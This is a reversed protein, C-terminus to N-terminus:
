MFIVFHLLPQTRVFLDHPNRKIVDVLHQTMNFCTFIFAFICCSCLLHLCRCLGRFGSSWAQGLLPHAATDDSVLSTNGAAAGISGSSASTTSTTMNPMEGVTRPQSPPTLLRLITRQAALETAQLVSVLHAHQKESAILIASSERIAQTSALSRDEIQSELRSTDIELRSTDLELREVTAQVEVKRLELHQRDHYVSNAGLALAGIDSAVGGMVQGPNDHSWEVCRRAFRHMPRKPMLLPLNTASASPSLRTKLHFHINVGHISGIQRQLQNNFSSLIGNWNVCAQQQIGAEDQHTNDNIDQISVSEKEQCILRTRLRIYVMTTVFIIRALIVSISLDGWFSDFSIMGWDFAILAGLWPLSYLLQECCLCTDLRSQFLQHNICLGSFASLREISRKDVCFWISIVLVLLCSLSSALQTSHSLHTCLYFVFNMSPFLILGAILMFLEYHVLHILGAILMFLEYRVLNDYLGTWFKSVMSLIHPKDPFWQFRARHNATYTKPFM